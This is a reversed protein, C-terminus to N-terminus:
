AHHYRIQDVVYSFNEAFKQPVSRRIRRTEDFFTIERLLPHKSPARSSSYVVGVEHGLDRAVRTLMRTYTTIGTGQALSLNLGDFIIRRSDRAVSLPTTTVDLSFDVNARALEPETFREVLTGEKQSGAPRASRRLVPYQAAAHNEHVAGP